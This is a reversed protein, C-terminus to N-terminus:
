DKSTTSEVKDQLRDIAIVLVGRDRIHVFSQIFYGFILLLTTLALAFSFNMQTKNATRKKSIKQRVQNTKTDGNTKKDSM